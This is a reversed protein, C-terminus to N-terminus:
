NGNDTGLGLGAHHLIRAARNEYSLSEAARTAREALRRGHARDALLAQIGANLASGDDPEVFRVQEDTLWDTLAPIRSAVIPTGSALYEGLKVPSTWAASPHHASPPLLLLDAHWLYPMVESHPKLGHFIVNDLGLELTRARHRDIDEPWGGVLHYNVEPNTTAAEIITPIGKYDYLHGVYAVNPGTERYPSPPLESPRKFLSLDVADPLVLLKREPVGQDLYGEALRESITVLSRLSRYDTAKILRRFNASGEDPHAHTEAVTPWGLRSTLFPLIYNRGFVMAPRARLVAPLALLGFSWHSDVKRGMFTRPLQVWRLPERIGFDAALKEPPVQGEKPELCIFTVAHGLRAFGQALKITNIAHAWQFGFEIACSVVIRM